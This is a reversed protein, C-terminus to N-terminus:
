CWYSYFPVAMNLVTESLTAMCALKYTSCNVRTAEDMLKGSQNHM